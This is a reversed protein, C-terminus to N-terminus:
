SEREPRGPEPEPGHGDALLQPSPVPVLDLGPLIAKTRHTEQSDQTVASAAIHLCAPMTQVSMQPRVNARRSGPRPGGHHGPPPTAPQTQWPALPTAKEIPM